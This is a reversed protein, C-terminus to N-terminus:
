GRRCLQREQAADTTKRVRALNKADDAVKDWFAYAGIYTIGTATISAQKGELKFTPNGGMAVLMIGSPAPPGHEAHPALKLLLDALPANSFYQDGTMRKAPFAADVSEFAEEFTVAQDIVDGVHKLGPPNRLPAFEAAAAQATPAFSTCVFSILPPGGPEIVGLMIDIEVGPNMKAVTGPLRKAIAPTDSLAYSAVYSHIAPLPYLKVDFRTVVAFFGPGAGRAAWFLDSNHTEDAYLVDGAATVMEMGTISLCSPGWLGFNWGWGGNLLFGSLNVDSCHATPFALKHPALAAIFEGAKVIM